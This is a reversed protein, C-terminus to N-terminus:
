GDHGRPSVTTGSTATDYVVESLANTQAGFVEQQRVRALEAHALCCSLLTLIFVSRIM